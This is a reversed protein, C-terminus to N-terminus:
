KGVPGPYEKSQRCCYFVVDNLATDDGHGQPSEIRTALGCIAMDNDCSESWQGYNGRWASGPSRALETENNDGALDRCYFKIYNASTDDGSGQKVSRLPASVQLSFATLFNAAHYEQNCTETKAWTGFNGEGSTVTAGKELHGWTDSCTLKIANLTTDDGFLHNSEIKMNYGSAFTGMPCFEPDTWLGYQGGNTVMLKKTVTRTTNLGEIIYGYAVSVIVLLLRLIYKM